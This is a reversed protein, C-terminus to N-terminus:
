SYHKPCPDRSNRQHERRPASGCNHESVTTRARTTGLTRLASVSAHRPVLRHRRAPPADFTGQLFPALNVISHRGQTDINVVLTNLTPRDRGHFRTITSGDDGSRYVPSEHVVQRRSM